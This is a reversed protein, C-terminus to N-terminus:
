KTAHDDTIDVGMTIHPTKLDPSSGSPYPFSHVTFPGHLFHAVACMRILSAWSRVLPLFRTQMVYEATKSMQRPMTRHRSGDSSSRRVLQRELGIAFDSGMGM